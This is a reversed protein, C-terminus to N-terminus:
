GRRGMRQAVLESDFMSLSLSLISCVNPFNKVNLFSVFRSACIDRQWFIRTRLDALTANRWFIEKPVRGM